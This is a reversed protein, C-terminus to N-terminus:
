EDDDTAHDPSGPTPDRDLNILPHTEAGDPAAHRGAKPEHEHQEPQM